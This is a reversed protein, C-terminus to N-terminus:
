SNQVLHLFQVAWFTLDCDLARKRDPELRMDVYPSPYDINKPSYRKNHPLDFRIKLIGDDDLADMINVVSDKIVGVNEAVGLMAIETLIRRYTINHIKDAQFPRIPSNGMNLPFPVYYKSDIKVHIPNDDHTIINFHNLADVMLRINEETRWAKTYALTELNYQCPFYTDEEIYPYNYKAKSQRTKTIENFSSLLLISRFAELSLKQFPIVCEDDGHGLMAQMAYILTMLCYGSNLGRFRKEFRPIEPPIYSFEERLTEDNRMANVFGLVLPHNKPIAYYSLLRAASEGDQLPTEKLKMGHWNDGGHMGMGIYGNPKAYSKVLKFFPTQYIQELLNEEEIQSINQLIEKRLRYQIVPGSNELLFDISKQNM